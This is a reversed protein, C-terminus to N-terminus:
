AIAPPGARAVRATSVAGARDAPIVTGRIQGPVIRPFVTAQLQGNQLAAGVIRLVDHDSLNVLAHASSQDAWHGRLQRMAAPMAALRPLVMQARGPERIERPIRSLAGLRGLLLVEQDAHIEVVDDRM